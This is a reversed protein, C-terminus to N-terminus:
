YSTIQIKKRLKKKKFEFNEDLHLRLNTNIVLFTVLIQSYALSM